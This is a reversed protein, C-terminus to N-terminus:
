FTESERLAFRRRRGLLMANEFGKLLRVPNAITTNQAISARLICHRLSAPQPARNAVQPSNTVRRGVSAFCATWRRNAVPACSAMRGWLERQTDSYRALSLLRAWEDLANECNRYVTPRQRETSYLREVGLGHPGWASARPETPGDREM